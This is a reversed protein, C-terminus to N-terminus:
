PTMSAAFQGGNNDAIILDSADVLGDGNLDSNVYGSVFSSGDNDLNIMDGSDVLGDQNADGGFLLYKGEGSFKLNSGYARGALDTFDYIISSGSFSVPLSSVTELSNRHHVTLYYSGTFGSPISVTVLGSTSLSVLGTSYHITNYNGPTADHLELTVQDATNGPFQDGSGNQAKNMIGSGQYLGELLLTVSLSKEAQLGGTFTGFSSLANAQLQHLSINVTGAVASPLPSVQLCNLSSETGVVDSPSVFQFVANCSFASIGSSELNWFRNLYNGSLTNGAYASNSLNVGAYNGTGFTGSTFTLSVPSYEATSTNDGVPFTFSGGGAPFEKRLQGTATAVIMNGSSFSGTISANPGLTFNGSGINFLCSSLALTGNLAASASCSIGNSNALSLTLLSGFTISGSGSITQASAGNLNVTAAAAPSFTLIGGSGVTINGKISHGPSGTVNFNLTGNTVTLNEITISSTGTPSLTAGVADLEFNGYTRGSFSPSISATAKFLSGSQFVVVSNPAAAGFPNSGAQCFYTSGSAFIVANYPTLTGFPSGSFATGATFASGNGFTIGSAASSILRHAGGAFTMSGNLSGTAAAALSITVANAGSINLSSGSPIDLDTGSLGAISLTTAVSSQLTIQTNNSFLVKGVTQAPVSSITKTTGDSFLLIDNDAPTTRAPTWNSSVTWAANDTGQWTYSNVPIATTTASSSPAAGSTKYDIATGSNTYPYITFYYTTSPNLNVWTYSQITHLVNVKGTGDSLITDNIQATGDVPATFTGTTNALILFGTAPQTGDNDNWTLTISSHLPKPNNLTTAQGSPEEALTTILQQPSLTTGISNTAYAAFFIETGAPLGSRLQTFTGTSTGGEALKNDNITVPTNISWVTGRELIPSGGDSIITAGLLATSSLVSASTSNLITPASAVFPTTQSSPNNAGAALCYKTATGSGNYEFVQLWYTLNSALGTINVANGTGNFVCQQGSGSYAPNALPDTGDAPATITSSNSILVVRKEGDGNLWSGTFSTGALNSFSIDHAQVTPATINSAQVSGGLILDSTSTTNGLDFVYWSGASSTGGYPVIRITIITGASVNQLDSIGSLSIQTITAGTTATSTFSLTAIDNFSGSGLQYQLLGNPPGTSSRRYNLDFTSLSVSYGSNAQVTFSFTANATISAASTSYNLGIGGWGRAAATGTTSVGTGRTLGGISANTASTSAAWPSPGYNNTGGTLSNPEWAALVQSKGTQQFGLFIFATFIVAYITAKKM